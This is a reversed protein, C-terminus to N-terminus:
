VLTCQNLMKYLWLLNQGRVKENISKQLKKLPKMLKEKKKLDTFYKAILLKHLNVSCASLKLFTKFLSKKSNLKVDVYTRNQNYLKLQKYCCSAGELM